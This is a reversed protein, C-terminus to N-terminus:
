DNKAREWLVFDQEYLKEIKNKVKTTIMPSNIYNTTNAHKYTLNLDLTKNIKNLGDSFNETQFTITNNWDTIHNVFWSQSRLHVNRGEEPLENILDIFYDIDKINNSGISNITIHQKKGQTVDKFTSIMRDIPNRFHIVTILNNQKPWIYTLHKKYKKYWDISWDIDKESIIKQELWASVKFSSSGTKPIGIYDFNLTDYRIICHENKRSM